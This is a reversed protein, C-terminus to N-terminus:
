FHECTLLTKLHHFFHPCYEHFDHQLVFVNSWYEMQLYNIHYSQLLHNSDVVDVPTLGVATKRKM